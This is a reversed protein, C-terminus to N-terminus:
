YTFTSVNTIEDMQDLFATMSIQSKSIKKNTLFSSTGDGANKLLSPVSTIPISSTNSSTSSMQGTNPEDTDSITINEEVNSTSPMTSISEKHYKKCKSDSDFVKKLGAPCKFCKKIHNEMKNVNAHKYDKNCYKCQVSKGKVNFFNWALGKKGGM